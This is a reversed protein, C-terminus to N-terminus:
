WVFSKYWFETYSSIVDLISDKKLYIIKNFTSIDFYDNLDPASIIIIDDNIIVHYLNQDDKYKFFSNIEDLNM